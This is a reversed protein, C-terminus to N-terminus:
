VIVKIEEEMIRKMGILLLLELKVDDWFEKFVKVINIEKSCLDVVVVVM